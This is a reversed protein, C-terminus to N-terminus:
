FRRGRRCLTHTRRPGSAHGAHACHLVPVFVFEFHMLSAHTVAGGKGRNEDMRIVRINGGGRARLEQALDLAVRATADTSGDDVLLVEYDSSLGDRLRQLKREELHALAEKIM